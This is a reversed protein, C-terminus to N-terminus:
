DNKWMNLGEQFMEIMLERDAYQFFSAIEDKLDHIKGFDFLFMMCAKKLKALHFLWADNLIELVNSSNIDELLSEECADKLDIIDYKHAAALLQFRHELFENRKMGGYIYALFACCSENSMDDIVVTSSENEKLSHQFMGKFVPSSASLIAKHAKLTGSSTHITVDAHLEDHLMRSLCSITSKNLVTQMSEETCWVSTAEGGNAGTKLDLFEVDIIYRGYIAADIHWLFDEGTRFLRDNIVPTAFPRRTSGSISARVIFTAIPPQEKRGPEPFLRICISRNKEVALHWNWLGVKFADSRRYSFPSFCEVKWQAMRSITEVKSEPCSM